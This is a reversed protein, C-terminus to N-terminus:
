GSRVQRVLFQGHRHYRHPGVLEATMYKTTSSNDILKTCDEAPGSPDYQATMTGGNDTIDSGTSASALHTVAVGIGIILTAGLSLAIRRRTVRSLSARYTPVPDEGRTTMAAM